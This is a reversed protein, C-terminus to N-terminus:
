ASKEKRSDLQEAAEGAEGRKAVILYGEREAVVDSWSGAHVEHGVATIFYRPEARAEEYEETSLRLIKTCGPDACECLVPLLGRLETRGAADEITENASRFTDQNRAVREASVPTSRDSTEM